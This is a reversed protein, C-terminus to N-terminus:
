RSPYCKDQPWKQQGVCFRLCDNCSWQQVWSQNICDEYFDICKQRWAPVKQKKKAAEVGSAQSVPAAKAPVQSPQAPSAAAKAKQKAELEVQVQQAAESLARLKVRLNREADFEVPAHDYEPGALESPKLAVFLAILPGIGALALVGESVGGEEVVGETGTAVRTAQGSARAIRAAEAVGEAGRAVRALQGSEGALAEFGEWAREAETLRSNLLEWQEPPLEARAKSLLARGQVLDAKSIESPSLTQGAAGEAMVLTM